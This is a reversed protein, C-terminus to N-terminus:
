APASISDAPAEDQAHHDADDDATDPPRPRAWVGTALLVLAPEVPARYRLQGFTLAISLTAVVIPALLPFIPAGRRRLRVAGVPAMSLLLWSMAFAAWTPPREVGFYTELQVQQAPRFLGWVRAVRLTLVIPVREIHDRGYSTWSESWDAGQNWASLCRYSKYGLADGYFGDNCWSAAMTEGSQDSLLVVHDFRSLNYVVWPSVVAVVTVGVLLMSAVVPAVRRRKYWFLPVAILPGLLILEARSLAALGVAAGLWLMRARSPEDWCRYAALIVLAVSFMAMTESLVWGDPMWMTPFVAALAAAGLGARPGAIRRGTLGVLGVTAAGLFCSWVQHAFFTRFGVLSAAALYVIYAPPHDAGPMRRMTFAAAVPHIFGEGDALLNAGVHYYVADGSERAPHSWGIVYGLRVALGAAVIAALWVHWPLQRARARWRQSEVPDDVAVGEGLV